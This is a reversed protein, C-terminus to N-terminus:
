KILEQYANDKTLRLVDEQHSKKNFFTIRQREFLAEYQGEGLDSSIVMDSFDINFTKLYQPKFEAENELMYKVPPLMGEIEHYLCQIGDNTTPKIILMWSYDHGGLTYVGILDKKKHKPFFTFKGSDGKKIEALQTYDYKGTEKEEYMQGYMVVYRGDKKKQLYFYEGAGAWWGGCADIADSPIKYKKAEEKNFKECALINALHHKSGDLVLYVKNSPMDESNTKSAECILSLQLSEEIPPTENQCSFLVCLLLFYYIQKVM